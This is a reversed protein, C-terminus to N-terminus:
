NGMVEALTSRNEIKKRWRKVWCHNLLSNIMLFGM